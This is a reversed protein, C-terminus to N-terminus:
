NRDKNFEILTYSNGSETTDIYVIGEDKTFYLMPSKGKEEAFIYLEHYEKNNLSYDYLTDCLYGSFERNSDITLVIDIEFFEETYATIDIYNDEDMEIRAHYKERLTWQVGFTSSRVTDQYLDSFVFTLTDTQNSKQFRITDGFDYVFLEREEETFRLDMDEICSLFTFLFLSIFLFIKLTKMLNLFDVSFTNIPIRIKM